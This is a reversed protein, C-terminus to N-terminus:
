AMWVRLSLSMPTKRACLARLVGIDYNGEKRKFPILWSIYLNTKNRCPCLVQFRSFRKVPQVSTAQSGLTLRLRM